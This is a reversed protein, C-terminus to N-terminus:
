PGDPPPPPADGEGPPMDPRPGRPGRRGKGMSELRETLQTKQSETLVEDVQKRLDAMGAADGGQMPKAEGGMAPKAESRRNKRYEEFIQNLKERQDPQLDPLTYVAQRLEGPGQRRGPMMPRSKAMEWQKDFNEVQDPRLQAKIADHLETEMQENAERRKNSYEMMQKRLEDLKAKDNSERADRMQDQLQRMENMQEPTPRMKEMNAQRLEEVKAQIQQRQADDLNLSNLLNDLAGPAMLMGARGMPPRMGQRRMGGPGGPPEDGALAVSCFCFGVILLGAALRLKASM